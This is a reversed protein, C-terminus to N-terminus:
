MRELRALGLLDLTNGLAQRAAGVLALRSEREAGARLVPVENYFRNFEEALDHAYTALTHVHASRAVYEVTAPLRSITRLLTREFPTGLAAVDFPFPGDDREAKRLLTTARAYSYQLFPASRGEFALADEWRFQVTKEPAVRVISYRIAGAGLSEAIRDVEEAPLDDRRSLVEARARRVAEELLDDLYVATGGRSSMKGGSPATIYAYLVYEPRRAEGVEALLADLTKAHLLHDAGLVDLVRPFRRFKQLHFAVDRTAYLSSGDARTVIITASEKPLGYEAADIALAGNEERRAHPARALRERVGDVSGDRILSSEWVFEDFRIGLRELSALMGRLIREALDHHGPPEAGSELSGYLAQVEAMAEPHAKLYASAAPYPRGLRHDEKTTGDSDAAPMEARVEAPWADPPRSWIWTIVAAQRGVDDVYYQSTVPLGAARLTRVLTDGIVANRVRGIHFPGTTNASTHEVSVASSRPRAHGYRAGRAFVLELTRRALAADDLLFNVYAGRSTVRDVGDLGGLEGALQAALEPASRGLARAPRQVALALDAPPQAPAGLQSSLWEPAPPTGLGTLLATLRATIAERIPGWPDTPGAEANSSASAVM